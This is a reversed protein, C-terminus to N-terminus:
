PDLPTDVDRLPDTDLPTDTDLPPVPPPMLLEDMGGQEDSGGNLSSHLQGFVPLLDTAGAHRSYILGGIQHGLKKRNNFSQNGLM